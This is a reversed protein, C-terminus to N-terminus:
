NHVLYSAVKWVESLDHDLDDIDYIDDIDDIDDVTSGKAATFIHQAPDTYTSYLDLGPLM